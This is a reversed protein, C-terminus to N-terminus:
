KKVARYEAIGAKREMDALKAEVDAVTAEPHKSLWEKWVQNWPKGLGSAYTHIGKGSKYRHLDVPLDYYYRGDNIDKIGIREFEAAM